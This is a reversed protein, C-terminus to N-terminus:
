SPWPNKTCSLAIRSRPAALTLTRFHSENLSIGQKKFEVLCKYVIYATYIKRTVCPLLNIFSM